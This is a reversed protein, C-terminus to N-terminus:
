GRDLHTQYLAMVRKVYYQTEKYPPVQYGYRIVANEGANYGALALEKDGNFLNLLYRLYRAGGHLNSFVDTRDAVGYRRATAPMLQMLGVAGKPSTANPNYASETQIVAHLLEPELLNEQAIQQVLKYYDSYKQHIKASRSYGGDSFSTFGSEQYILVYGNGRPQDTLHIVGNADVFKYIKVTSRVSPSQVSSRRRGANVPRDTFNLVGESDTYSYIENGCYASFTWFSNFMIGIMIGRRLNKWKRKM